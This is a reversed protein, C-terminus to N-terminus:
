PYRLIVYEINDSVYLIGRFVTVGLSNGQTDYSALLSPHTPSSIDYAEVGSEDEAVYLINGDIACALANDYTDIFGIETPSSPNAINFISVGNIDNAVFAYDGSLKIDYAYNQSIGQSLRSPTQPNSVDVIDLGQDQAFYAVNNRILIEDIISFSQYTSISAVSPLNSIDYLYVKKNDGGAYLIKNTTDVYVARIYDGSFNITTDLIASNIDKVDIISVGGTGAAIFVYPISDRKWVFTEEVFGTVNYGVVHSPNIPNSIDLIQLGSNGDSLFSYDIGNINKIFSHQFTESSGYKGLYTMERIQEPSVSDHECGYFLSFLFLVIFGAFINKIYTM